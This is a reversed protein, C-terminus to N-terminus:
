QIAGILRWWFYNLPLILVLAIAALPLSVRLFQSATIRGLGIGVILPASQYPFVVNAFGNVQIMLTSLLPLGGATAAQDAFSAMIVVAGPQTAVLSLAIAIASLAAYSKAPADARLGALDLLGQAALAGVGSAVIVAGLGIVAAVFLLTAMSVRERFAAPPVLDLGPLLCVAAAATAVWGPAIRHLVDSAWAVLAVALILALRRGAPTLRPPEARAPRDSAIRDPFALCIAIVIFVGKLLGTFPLHLLLYYGYTLTIGHITDAAGALVVNPLNAPLIAMPVYFSGLLTALVLGTRGPRGAHLGIRDALALTIPMLVVLRGIASPLLFGLATAGLVLGAVMRPYSAGIRRAAGHAIWDGLGTHEAAAGIVLGGFVLWWVSSQFGSFVVEPPAIALGTAILFFLIATLHEPLAGSAWLGFTFLTLAAAPLLLPSAEAPAPLAAVGLAALALAIVVFARRATM